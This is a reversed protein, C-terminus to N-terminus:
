HRRMNKRMKYMFHKKRMKKTKNNSKGLWKPVGEKNRITIEDKNLNIKVALIVTEKKDIVKSGTVKVTDGIKLPKKYLGVCGFDVKLKENEKTQVMIIFNEKKEGYWNEIDISEIQGEIEVIANKDFKLIQLNEKGIGVFSFLFLAFLITFKLNHKVRYM